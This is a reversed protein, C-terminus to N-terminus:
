PRAVRARPENEDEALQLGTDPCSELLAGVPTGCPLTLGPAIDLLPRLVFDREGMRPHPVRLSPLDVVRDDYLLMDLDLTRPAWREGRQRGHGTEIDLLARLLPLPELSTDVGAAGNLYDPQRGPGVARSRYWPSRALLRCEPLADIARLASELQQRPQGLNAGLAIYCRSM